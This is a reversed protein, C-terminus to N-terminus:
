PKGEDSLRALVRVQSYGGEFLSHSFYVVKESIGCGVKM